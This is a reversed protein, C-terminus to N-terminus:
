DKLYERAKAVGTIISKEKRRKEDITNKRKVYDFLKKLKPFSGEHESYAREYKAIDVRDIRAKLCYNDHGFSGYREDHSWSLSFVIEELRGKYKINEEYGVVYRGDLNEEIPRHENMTLKWNEVKRALKFVESQLLKTRKIKRMRIM